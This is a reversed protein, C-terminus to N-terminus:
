HVRTRVTGPTKQAPRKKMSTGGWFSGNFLHIGAATGIVPALVNALPVLFLVSVVLGILHQQGRTRTLWARRADSDGHRAAALEAVDRGFAIGNVIVFLLLPGIGTILLLLYFPLALLNLFILRAASKLGIMAGRAVGVPRASAAAEPYHRGEVASAIKDSFATMVAIAVAPFLFWGALLTALVGGVLGSALGVRCTELGVLNCPDAGTILWTFLGGAVAFILLAVVVAHLMIALIHRNGLDAVALGIARIMM